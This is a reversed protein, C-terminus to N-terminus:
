GLAVYVCVGLVVLLLTFPFCFYAIWSPFAEHFDVDRNPCFSLWWVFKIVVQAPVVIAVFVVAVRLGQISATAAFMPPRSLKSALLLVLENAVYVWISALPLTVGLWSIEHRRPVAAYVASVMVAANLFYWLLMCVLVSCWGM